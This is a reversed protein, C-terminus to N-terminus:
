TNRSKIFDFNTKLSLIFNRGEEPLGILRYFSTHMMYKTDLINRVQLNLEMLQNGIHFGTGSQLNLLVFGPTTQEPPVINNQAATLRTDLSLYPHVLGGLSQPSYTINLTSSLPPSFPLTFGRKDGSLQEAYVYEATLQTSLSASIKYGLMFEGGARLVRSQSYQYIQNGAGYAYDFDPTPNLYIYNPFYNVFPSLKYEIKNKKYGLSLDIQYSEEPDLDADGREFSFYHYNVGNAALEKAIPTRFSKGLNIKFTYDELNYNAGIAGTVSSFNRVLDEARTIKHLSTTGNDSVPTEFWDTYPLTHLHSFDYRLATHLIWRDSLSIKDYVFLGTSFQDFSPVLFGYGGIRNDQYETNSGFKVEHKGRSWEDYINLSYVKKSYQRELNSPIGLTDPYTVPMYGHQVYGFYEQRFNHQFGAIIELSHKNFDFFSRNIIKLHKVRDSPDQIDRRSQDYRETDVQRPELGHANAFFGNRSMVNSIYFTTNFRKGLYGANLSLGTQRGATNRVLRDHLTVPYNYVHVTDTPVRYDGYSQHSMSGSAFWNKHRGYLKLDSGLLRNNSRATLGIEGGLSGQRPVTPPNIQIVGGIASSGYMFSAPGKIIEIQDVAYQDIELGHDLGWQQAEHKVGKDMVLLRDFGLGRIMPKAQGAGISIMNLGPIKELSQVLSGGRNQTLFQQSVVEINMASYQERYRAADDIVQVENLQTYKETLQIDDHRSGDISINKIIERYGRADVIIQYDGVAPLYVTYHGEADTETNALFDEDTLGVVHVHASAISVSKYTVHGTLKIGQAQVLQSSLLIFIALQGGRLKM